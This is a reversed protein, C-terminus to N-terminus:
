GEHLEAHATEATDWMHQCHPCLFCRKLLNEYALVAKTWRCAPCDVHIVHRVQSVVQREGFYSDSARRYWHRLRTLRSRQDSADPVNMKWIHDRQSCPCSVRALRQREYRMLRPGIRTIVPGSFPCDDPRKPGTTDTICVAWEPFGWSRQIRLPVCSSPGVCRRNRRWPMTPVIKMITGSTNPWCGDHMSSTSPVHDM